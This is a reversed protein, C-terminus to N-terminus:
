IRSQATVHFAYCLM